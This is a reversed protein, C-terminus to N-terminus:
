FDGEEYTRREHLTAKRASIIRGEDVDTGHETRPWTHTVIVVVNSVLGVTHWREEVSSTDPWTAALPDDFVLQATEFSLRHKQQNARNKNEDWTWRM